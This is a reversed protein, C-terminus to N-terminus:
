IDIGYKDKEQYYTGTSEDVYMILPRADEASYNKDGMYYDGAYPVDIFLTPENEVDIYYQGYEDDKSFECNWDRTNGGDLAFSVGEYKCIITDTITKQEGKYEYVLEFPFEGYKIKPKSPKIFIM